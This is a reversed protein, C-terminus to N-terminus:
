LQRSPKYLQILECLYEPAANNLCKYTLLAIKYEIRQPVPLWHLNILLPTAHDFKKAQCIVTVACNQLKQVKYIVYKPAGFLLGNCYDLNSTVFSHVLEETASISLYKRIQRIKRLQHYGKRCVNNVHDSMSMQPDFTVGLNRLVYVPKISSQSLNLNNIGVKALQERTGLIMFETKADNIKLRHSLMWSRVAYICSELQETAEQESLKSIPKYSIYIQHDDAYGAVKVLPLYEQILDYLSSLYSLFVVPGACSGQPVGYKIKHVGSIAENIKVRQGRDQLYTCFWSLVNCEAFDLCFDHM